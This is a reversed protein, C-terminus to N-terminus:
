DLKAVAGDAWSKLLAPTTRPRTPLRLVVKKQGHALVVHVYALPRAKSLPQTLNASNLQEKVVTGSVPRQYAAAFFRLPKEAMVSATASTDRAGFMVDALTTAEPAPPATTAKVPFLRPGSTAARAAARPPPAGASAKKGAGDTSTGFQVVGVTDGSPAVMVAM